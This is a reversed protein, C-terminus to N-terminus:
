PRPALSVFNSAESAIADSISSLRRPKRGVRLM